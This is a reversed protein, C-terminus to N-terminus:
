RNAAQLDRTAFARPRYLERGDAEGIKELQLARTAFEVLPASARSRDVVVYGVRAAQVFGPARRVAQEVDAESVARGESLAMLVALVPRRRIVDVRRSSVRSLYGGILRKGHLTQHFQSAACYDGFSSLGDRVGFPLELVRVDRPDSAIKSYIAPVIGDHLPKPAPCLEFVLLGSVIALLPVRFAPRRDVLARLALAFLVSAALIVVVGFRSPARAAGIVPLYRLLAWPTPLCTDAGAVRVFPGLTLSGFLLALAGWSRPVRFRAFVVAAVIVLTAVVTISTVNEAYGGPQSTLWARWPEGLWVHNPNPMFLTTLDAGPTSTRWYLRPSVFRGDFIRVALSYLIPSLLVATAAASGSLLGAMGLWRAKHRLSVRPRLTMAVRVLVALVLLLNPTYATTLGVPVGGLTVQIGGTALISAGLLFLAVILGDLFRVSRRWAAPRWTWPSCRVRVIRTGLFWAALMACYIAYYPDCVAAWALTAGVVIAWRLSRTADLRLLSFVFLPLPAAAALSPHIDSRAVLMPSLGFLLGALWAIVPRRVVHLALLYMTAAGAVLNLLVLINHSAVLGFAPILPVALVDSFITYNHLSLDVPTDLSFISSTVLPFHGSMVEHRFVWLNWLYVGLDSTTEGTLKDSLHRALPWTFAVAAAAYAM